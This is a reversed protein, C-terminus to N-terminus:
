IIKKLSSVRKAFYSQQTKIFLSLVIVVLIIITIIPTFIILKPINKENFM